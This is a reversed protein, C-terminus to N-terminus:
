WLSISISIYNYYGQDLQKAKNEDENVLGRKGVPWNKFSGRKIEDAISNYIINSSGRKIQLGTPSM